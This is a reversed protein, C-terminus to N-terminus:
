RMEFEFTARCGDWVVIERSSWSWNVGQACRTDSLNSRVRVSGRVPASCTRRARNRSECTVTGLDRQWSDRRSTQLDLVSAGEADWVCRYGIVTEKEQVTDLKYTAEGTLLLGRAAEGFRVGPRVVLTPSWYSRRRAMEELNSRVGRKCAHAAAALDPPLAATDAGQAVRYSGRRLRNRKQDWECSFTMPQPLYEAGYRFEGTGEFRIRDRRDQVFSVTDADLTANAGFGFGQDRAHNAVDRAVDVQCAELMMARVDDPPAFAQRAQLPSAAPMLAIATAAFLCVPTRSTGSM